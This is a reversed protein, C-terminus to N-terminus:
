LIDKTRVRADDVPSGLELLQDCHVRRAARMAAVQLRIRGDDDPVGEIELDFLRTIRHRRQGVHVHEVGVRGLEVVRGQALDELGTM